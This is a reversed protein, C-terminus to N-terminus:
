GRINYNPKMNRARELRSKDKLDLTAIKNLYDAYAEKYADDYEKSVKQKLAAKGYRRQTEYSGEQANIFKSSVDKEFNVPSVGTNVAADIMADHKAKKTEKSAAIEKRDVMNGITSEPLGLKRAIQRNTLGSDAMSQARSAVAKIEDSTARESNGFKEKEAQKNLRYNTQLSALDTTRIMYIPSKGTAALAM